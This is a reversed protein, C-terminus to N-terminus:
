HIYIYLINRLDSRSNQNNQLYVIIIIKINLGAHIFKQSAQFKNLQKM